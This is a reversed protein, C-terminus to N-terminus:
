LKKFQSSKYFSEIIQNVTQLAKHLGNLTTSSLQEGFGLEVAPMTIFWAAPCHDFVMKSLALLWQPNGTHHLTARMEGPEIADVHISDGVTALRADLFIALSASALPEALEPTLQHVSFVEVGPWNQAAVTEALLRGAGDDCRLTNGYGIVVVPRALDYRENPPRTEM